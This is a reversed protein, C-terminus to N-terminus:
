LVTVVTHVPHPMYNIEVKHKLFFFSKLSFNSLAICELLFRQSDILVSVDQTALGPIGHLGSNIEQPHKQFSFGQTALGPMGHIAM